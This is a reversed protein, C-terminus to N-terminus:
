KFSELKDQIPFIYPVPRHQEKCNFVLLIINETTIRGKPVPLVHSRYHNPVYTKTGVLISLPLFWPLLTSMPPTSTMFEGSKEDISDSEQKVMSIHICSNQAVRLNTVAGLVGGCM